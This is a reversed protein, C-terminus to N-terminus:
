LNITFGKNYKKISGGREIKKLYNRYRLIGKMVSSCIYNGYRGEDRRNIM